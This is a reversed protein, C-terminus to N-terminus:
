CGFGLSLVVMVISCFSEFVIEWLDSLVVLFVKCLMFSIMLLRCWCIFVWVVFFFIGKLVNGFRIFDVWLSSFSVLVIGVVMLFIDFRFFFIWLFVDVLLWIWFLLEIFNNLDYGFCFKYVLYVVDELFLFLRDLCFEM